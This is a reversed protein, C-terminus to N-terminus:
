PAALGSFGPAVRRIAAEFREPEEVVRLVSGAQSRWQAISATVYLPLSPALVIASALAARNAGFWHAWLDSIATGPMQAARLDIFLHLRGAEIRARAIEDFVESAVAGRDTGRLMVVLTAHAPRHLSFSCAGDGISVTRPDDARRTVPVAAGDLAQAIQGPSGPLSGPVASRMAATFADPNEYLELDIGSDLGTMSVSLHLFKSATLVHVRRLQDRRAEFWRTWATRAVNSVHLVRAADVFLELAIPFRALEASLEAVTADGFEGDDWGASVVWMVGPRLRTFTFKAKETRLRIAGNALVERLM